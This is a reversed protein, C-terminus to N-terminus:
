WSWCARSGAPVRKRTTPSSRWGRPAPYGLLGLVDPEFGTMGSGRERVIQRITEQMVAMVDARGLLEVLTEEAAIEPQALVYLRSRQQRGALPDGAGLVGFGQGGAGVEGVPGPLDIALAFL